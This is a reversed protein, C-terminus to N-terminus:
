LRAKLRDSRNLGSAPDIKQILSFLEPICDVFEEPRLAPTEPPMLPRLRDLLLGAIACNAEWDAPDLYRAFCWETYSRQLREKLLEGLRRYLVEMGPLSSDNLKLMANEFGEGPGAAFCQGVLLAAEDRAQAKSLRRGVHPLRAFLEQLFDAVHSIVAQPTCREARDALNAIAANIASDIEGPGPMAAIAEQIRDLLGAARAQLADSNRM